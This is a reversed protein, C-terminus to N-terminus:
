FRPTDFEGKNAPNLCQNVLQSLLPFRHLLGAEDAPADTALAPAHLMVPESPQAAALHPTRQSAVILLLAVLLALVVKRMVHNDAPDNNLPLALPTATPSPKHPM